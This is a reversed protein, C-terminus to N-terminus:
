PALRSIQWNAGTRRYLIRDHLRSSRGQWFEITQPIVRYGGWYGPRPIAEKFELSYKEVNEELVARDSIVASQPSAWAGIRSGAPRSNFYEDSEAASTKEVVGEIRVQRELAAWFFLLSAHPNEEMEKGKHSNYNTFFVFGKDNYDKLLVIRAHPVGGKSVTALTMANVEDLESKTAEQWWRTFQEMADPAIDKESLEQLKYDKRIDAIEKKM